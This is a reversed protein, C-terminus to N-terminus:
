RGERRVEIAMSAVVALFGAAATLMAIIPTGERDSGLACWAIGGLFTGMSLLVSLPMGVIRVPERDASLPPITGGPVLGAPASPVTIDIGPHASPATWEWYTPATADPDVTGPLRTVAPGPAAPTAAAPAGTTGTVPLTVRETASVIEGTIPEPGSLRIPQRTIDISQSM